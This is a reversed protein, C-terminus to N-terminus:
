NGSNEVIQSAEETWSPNPSPPTPDIAPISEEGSSGQLIEMIHPHTPLLKGYFDAELM